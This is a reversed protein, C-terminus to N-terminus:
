LDKAKRAVTDAIRMLKCEVLTDILNSKTAMEGAVEEWKKFAMYAQERLSRTHKRIENIEGEVQPVTVGKPWPLKRFINPWERGIPLSEKLYQFTSELARSRRSISTMTNDGIEPLIPSLDRQVAPSPSLFPSASSTYLKESSQSFSRAENSFSGLSKTLSESGSVHQVLHIKRLMIGDLSEVKGDLHRLDSQIEKVRKQLEKRRIELGALRRYKFELSDREQKKQALQKRVRELRFGLSVITSELESAKRALKTIEKSLNGVAIIDEVSDSASNSVSQEMEHNLKVRKLKCSELELGSRNIEDSLSNKEDELRRIESNLFELRQGLSKVNEPVRLKVLERQKAIM